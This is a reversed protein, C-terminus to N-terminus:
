GHHRPVKEISGQEVHFLGAQSTTESSLELLDREDVGTVLMQGGLEELLGIVASRHHRDLEAPLDDILYVCQQGTLERFLYGQAVKLGVVLMKIQGRSLIENAPHKGVKIRIDARHPGYQTHGARLDREFGDALVQQLERASEWGPDFHFRYEAGLGLRALVTEVVPLFQELYRQRQETIAESLRCFERDWVALQVPDIKGHRLLSNRHKLCKSFRSWLNRYDHEVHFVGWDLFGRRHSPSGELLQFSFANVLQLPLVQALRSATTVPEGAVRFEFKGRDDRKVGIPVSRAAGTTDGTVVEGFCTCDTAEENILPRLLRTRFSRGRALLHIAELISTKGSGNLGHILNTGPDFDLRARRINRIGHIELRRIYM